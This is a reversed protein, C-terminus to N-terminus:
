KNVTASRLTTSQFGQETTGWGMVECSKGHEPKETALEVKIRDMTKYPFAKSLGPVKLLCVDNFIGRRTFRYRYHIKVATVNFIKGRRKDVNGSNCTLNEACLPDFPTGATVLNYLQASM